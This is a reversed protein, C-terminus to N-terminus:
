EASAPADPQFFALFKDKIDIATRGNVQALLAPDKPEVICRELYARIVDSNEVQFPVNSATMAITYPDGLDIVDDFMPERIIVAAVELGNPGKLPKKLSITVTEGM